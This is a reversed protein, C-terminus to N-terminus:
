ASRSLAPFVLGIAADERVLGRASSRRCSCSPSRARRRRRRRSCRRPSDGTRLLRARDRAPDLPQDRREVLALWRLVLFSARCRAPSPSSSRSSSSRSRVAFDRADGTRAAEARGRETLAWDDGVDACSGAAARAGALAGSSRRGVDGGLVAASHAHTATSQQASSRGDPRRAGGGPAAGGTAGRRSRAGSCAAARRSCRALGARDRQRLPRDDTRDAAAGGRRSVVAGVRRRAAGFLGALLAVMGLRDTWQRAAAAPRSRGDGSMLVVGVTQLGIVIAVVLLATLLSTSRACRAASTAGFDPDFCLLKFEKWVLLMLALAVAGLVAM